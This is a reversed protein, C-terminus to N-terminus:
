AAIPQAILPQVRALDACCKAAGLPDSLVALAHSRQAITLDHQKGRYAPGEPDCGQILPDSKVRDMLHEYVEKMDEFTVGDRKIEDIFQRSTIGLHYKCVHNAMSALTMPYCHLRGRYHLGVTGNAVATFRSSRQANPYTLLDKYRKVNATAAYVLLAMVVDARHSLPTSFVQEYMWDQTAAREEGRRDHKLPSQPTGFTSKHGADACVRSCYVKRNDTTEFQENCHLCDRKVPNKKSRPM